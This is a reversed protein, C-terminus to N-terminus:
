PAFGAPTPTEPSSIAFAKFLEGMQSAAAIRFAGAEIKEREAPSKGATLHEVRMALGLRDLFVGQAVAGHAVGGTSFVVDSLRGFNVHATLDAEGPCSLVPWYEHNRVAQLTDGYVDDAYGYDIILARGKFRAFRRVIEEAITEAQPNYEFITGDDASSPAPIDPAAPTADEVFALSETQADLGVLRERWTRGRRVFQRIPLCDFFENAVILTPGEPVDALSDAWDLPAPPAKLTQQQSHRLRGSLEVLYVHAAKLFGPRVSAARLIDAMLVGRGPGLEVLNFYSPEGIDTWSQVLWLGILEGFIQSIEPATTFDGDAGIPTSSMYYGDHPHFLADEMYDAFTIPGRARILDILREELPSKETTITM